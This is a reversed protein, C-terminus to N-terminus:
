ESKQEVLKAQVREQGQQLMERIARKEETLKRRKEFILDFNPSKELLIEIKPKQAGRQQRNGGNVNVLSTKLKKIEGIGQSKLIEAVTVVTTVAIGLGSLEVENQDKLFKTTLDVYFFASRTSSVKINDSSSAKENEAEKNPETANTDEEYESM